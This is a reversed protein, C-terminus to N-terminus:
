GKVICTVKLRNNTPRVAFHLWFHTYKKEIILEDFPEARQAAIDLLLAAYRVAQACSDCRIDAACGTLHNSQREGGVARNLKESRYGSSIRLPTDRCDCYSEAYTRRLEELWSCLRRLNDVYAPPPVNYIEPHSSSATMEGLTFHESLKEKPDTM